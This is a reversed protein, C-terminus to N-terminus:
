LAKCIHLYLTATLTKSSVRRELDCKYSSKLCIFAEPLNKKKQLGYLHREFSFSQQKSTLKNLLM